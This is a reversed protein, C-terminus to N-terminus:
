AMNVKKFDVEDYTEDWTAKTYGFHNAAKQQAKDMNDWWWENCPLHEIQTGVPFTTLLRRGATIL